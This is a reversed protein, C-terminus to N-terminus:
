ITGQVTAYNLDPNLSTHPKVTKVQNEGHKVFGGTRMLREGTLGLELADSLQQLWNTVEGYLQENTMTTMNIIIDQRETLTSLLVDPDKIYGHNIAYKWMATAPLPLLFGPSPYVKLDWCRQMTEAITEPTEQPYGFVLSTLSVIGGVERLLKIQEAFYEVEIHKNMAKLIEQNGSELSYGLVVAGADRFKEAVRRRTEYPIDTRGFLDARVAATWHIGLNAEILEDVFREALSLKYFSLDDWFNIYNAGYKEKNRRIEAIVSQPSRHRYPDHWQTYHCFTCKHVCGRATHVPMVVAEDAPYLTTKGRVNMKCSEIYREVDFIDWDPFPLDDLNPVAKRLGNNVVRGKRDRFVIGEVGIGKITAPYSGNTHPVPVVPELAEGLPRGADLARLVETMSIEGEGHVVVDVPTTAFLVEPVSEGVSNGVVVTAHPQYKKITHIFWKIWKYHTVIAGFAIVDYKHTAVYQEVQDDTMRNIDIDLLDFKYGAQKAVTVVYGLGVPLQRHKADHRLCVNVFLIRM